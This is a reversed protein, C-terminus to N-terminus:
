SRFRLTFYTQTDKQFIRIIARISGVDSRIFEVAIDRGPNAIADM